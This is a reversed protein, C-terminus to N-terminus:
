NAKEQGNDKGKWARHQKRAERNTPAIADSYDIDNIYTVDWEFVVKQRKYFHRSITKPAYFHTLALWRAADAISDFFRKSYGKTLLVPQRTFGRKLGFVELLLSGRGVTIGKGNVYVSYAVGRKNKNKKLLLKTRANRLHGRRNVEYKCNLSPVPLFIDKNVAAVAEARFREATRQILKHESNYVQYIRTNANYFPKLIQGTRKNRIALYPNIEYSPASPITLFNNIM